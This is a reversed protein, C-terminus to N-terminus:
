NQTQKALQDAGLLIIFDADYQSGYPITTTFRNGFTQTLFKKTGLKAAAPTTLDIISTVAQTGKADAIATVNLNKTTLTTRVSGALGSTDTANLLVVKAGEQVVPNHSNLRKIFSQIDSFDDLGVLPILASSGNPARYNTLLNTGDVNNFGVSKIASNNIDKTIDYLRRVESITLDTKVNGGIADALSSLKAPNSLTGASVAKTKLSTLIQRQNQTRDFDSAAFGYARYSDGRARALNM